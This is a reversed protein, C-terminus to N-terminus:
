LPVSSDLPVRYPVNGAEFLRLFPPLVVPLMKVLKMANVLIEYGMHCHQLLLCM